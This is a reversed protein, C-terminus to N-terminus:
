SLRITHAFPTFGTIYVTPADMAPLSGRLQVNKHAVQGPGFTLTDANVTYSGSGALLYANPRVPHSTVGTFTGGPRFILELAVPVGETGTLQVEAQMGSATETITIKTQLTQVESQPRNTRPMKEWDGDAPIQDKPYPQYYPGDLVQTLVWGTGVQELKETQFQGKGFFSSAVRM